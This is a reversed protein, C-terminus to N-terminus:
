FYLDHDEKAADYVMTAPVHHMEIRYLYGAKERNGTNGAATVVEDWDTITSPYSNYDKGRCFDKTTGGRCAYALDQLMAKRLSDATARVNDYDTEVPTRRYKIEWWTAESNRLFEIRQPLEDVIRWDFGHAVFVERDARAFLHINYAEQLYIGVPMTPELVEKEPIELVVEGISRTGVPQGLGTLSVTDTRSNM